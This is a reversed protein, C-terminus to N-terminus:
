FPSAGFLSISDHSHAMLWMMYGWNWAHPDSRRGMPHALGYHGYMIVPSWKYFSAAALVLGAVAGHQQSTPTEGASDANEVEIGILARSTRGDTDVGRADRCVGAHYSMQGRPVIRIIKGSRAILFDSSAPKGARRSGGQLWDQSSRGDTTHLMIGDPDDGRAEYLTKDCLASADYVEFM